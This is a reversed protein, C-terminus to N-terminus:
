HYPGTKMEHTSWHVGACCLSFVPVGLFIRLTTQETLLHYRQAFTKLLALVALCRGTSFLKFFYLMESIRPTDSSPKMRYLSPWLLEATPSSSLLLSYFPTPLCDKNRHALKIHCLWLLALTGCCNSISCWKWTAPCWTEPAAFTPGFM